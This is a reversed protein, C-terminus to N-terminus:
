AKVGRKEEEQNSKGEMDKSKVEHTYRGMKKFCLIQMTRMYQFEISQMRLKADNEIYENYLCIYISYM